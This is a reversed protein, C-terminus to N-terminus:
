FLLQFVAKIGLSAALGSIVHALLETKSLLKV